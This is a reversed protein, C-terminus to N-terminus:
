WHYIRCQLSSDEMESAESVKIRVLMNGYQREPTFAIGNVKPVRGTKTEKSQTDFLFFREKKGERYTGLIKQPLVFFKRTYQIGKKEVEATSKCATHNAEEM